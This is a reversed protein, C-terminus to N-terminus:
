PSTPGPASAFVDKRITPCLEAWSSTALIASQPQKRRDDGGLRPSPRMEALTYPPVKREQLTFYSARGLAPPLVRLFGFFMSNWAECLRGTCDSTIPRKCRGKREPSTKQGQCASARSQDKLNVGKQMQAELAKVFSCTSCCQCCIATSVCTSQSFSVYGYRM